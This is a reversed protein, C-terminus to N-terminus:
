SPSMCDNRASCSRVKVESGKPVGSDIQWAEWANNSVRTKNNVSSSFTLTLEKMNGKDDREM